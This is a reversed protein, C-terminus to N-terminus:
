RPLWGTDGGSTTKIYTSGGADTDVYWRGLEADVEGEPSGSGILPQANNTAATVDAMWRHFYETAAGNVVLPDGFTPPVLDLM